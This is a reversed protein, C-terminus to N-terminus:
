QSRNGQMTRIADAFNKETQESIEMAWKSVGSVLFLFFIMIALSAIIYGKISMKRTGQKAKSQKAQGKSYLTYM